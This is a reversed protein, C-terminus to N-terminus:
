RRTGSSGRRRRTRARVRADPESPDVHGDTPLYAAALVDGIEILPHLEHAREPWVIEFPM